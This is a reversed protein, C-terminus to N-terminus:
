AVVSMYNSESEALPVDVEFELFHIRSGLANLAEVSPQEATLFDHGLEDRFGDEFRVDLSASALAVAFHHDFVFCFLRSALDLRTLLQL